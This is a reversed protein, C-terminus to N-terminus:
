RRIKIIVAGEPLKKMLTWADIRSMISVNVKNIEILEDGANLQGCKEAAGGSIYIRKIFNLENTM